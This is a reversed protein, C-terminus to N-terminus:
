LTRGAKAVISHPTVAGPRQEFWKGYNTVKFLLKKITERAENKGSEEANRSFILQSSNVFESLFGVYGEPTIIQFASTDWIHKACGECPCMKLSGYTKALELFWKKHEDRSEEDCLMQVFWQHECGKSENPRFWLYCHFVKEYGKMPRWSLKAPAASAM